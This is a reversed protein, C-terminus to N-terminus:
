SATYKLSVAKVRADGTATDGAVNRALKFFVLDGAAMSDNNALTVAITDSDGVTGPVTTATPSNATDYSEADSAEGDTVAMVSVSVGYTGTTASVMTFKVNLVPSSAFDDPLEFYWYVIESTTDDFVMGPLNNLYVLGAPNTADFGQPPISLIVTSM